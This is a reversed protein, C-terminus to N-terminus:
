RCKTNSSGGGFGIVAEAGFARAKDEAALVVHDPPDAVVPENMDPETAHLSPLLRSPPTAICSKVAFFAM